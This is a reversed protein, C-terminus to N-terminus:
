PEVCERIRPATATSAAGYQTPRMPAPGARSIEALAGFPAFGGAAPPVGGASLPEDTGLVREHRPCRKPQRSLGRVQAAQM